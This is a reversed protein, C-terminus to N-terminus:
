KYHRGEDRIESIQSERKTKNLRARALYWFSVFLGTNPISNNAWHTSYVERCELSNGIVNTAKLIGHYSVLALSVAHLTLSYQGPLKM